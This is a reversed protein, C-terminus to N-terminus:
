RFKRTGPFAGFPLHVSTQHATSPLFANGTATTSNAKRAQYRMKCSQLLKGCVDARAWHTSGLEPANANASTHAVLARWVTDDHLVLSSRRSDTANVTYSQSSAWTTYLRVPRWYVEGLAPDNGANSAIKSQYYLSNKVVFVDLAYTTGNAWTTSSVSSAQLIPEDDENVYLTSMDTANTSHRIQEKKKWVCAGKRDSAILTPNAGQYQWSCYKGVVVRNPVRVGALDFPAALELTVFLNTKEQIRDIIYVDKPFEVVPDSTLYKELTRRRTFRSGILDDLKFTSATVPVDDVESNWTGDEMQTKFKSGSKLISEVNAITVTPRNTAGDGKIEIGSMLIPLAVYTNGDYTIDQTNENKGDHFYLVNRTGGSDVGVELEFFELYGSNIEQKATDVGLQQSM